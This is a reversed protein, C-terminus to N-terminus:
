GVSVSVSRPNYLHKGTVQLSCFVNLLRLRDISASPADALSPSAVVIALCKARSLAVNLRNRNLLFDIGRAADEGGSAAMSILVVAAEQGQFRDVTGVRAGAPLTQELLNVQMNYPSVVLIDDAGMVRTQGKEDTWNRGLLDKYIAAIKKAEEPSRQAGDAHHVEVFRVGRPRLTGSEDVHLRQQNTTEAASLRGEYFTDSVFRCLDPHLRYTTGLFIGRDPPVTPLDRMLYDLASVGSGGPHAGKIPQSLQMQDGVLVINKTSGGMAVVNALSVQGAEDVFLYDFRGEMDERSFLWATGGVLQWEEQLSTKNDTTDEIFRGHLFSDPDRDSAKKVGKFTFNVEGAAKEIERLLNNIAKHSLSTVGIRKGAKLLSVIARASVFTKGTGPPGQIVLHSNSLASVAETIANVSAAAETGLSRGRSLRPKERRLISTLADSEADIAIVRLAYRMVADRMVHDPLPGDPMLSFEAPFASRSPGVKLKVIGREQDLEVIEGAPEMDPEARLPCDGVCLKTEQEPFRFTFVRSRKVMVPPTEPDATLGGLCEADDILQDTSWDAREFVWWWERRAERRHFNLLHGLLLRWDREEPPLPSEDAPDPHVGILAERVREIDTSLKLREEEKEKEGARQLDAPDFWKAGTPRLTLLWDRCLRTSRCDFANYTAIDDLLSQDGLVRWREYAVISDGGSSIKDTRAPAYFAELDKISYGPQCTRISERVVKYLDVFKHRRVLDDIPDERTGYKQALFKLTSAPTDGYADRLKRLAAVEYNAYHYVYADPFKALRALIFDVADEFAKKEQRREHAWFPTFHEVGDDVHHFGFLYELGGAPEWLPDGEMDFFLDGAHVPPLRNFGKHEDLELLEISPKRFTQLRAQSRIRDLAEPHLKQIRKDAPLEALGRMTTVGGAVLKARQQKTIRAVLSLHDANTWESDCRDSWRCVDCHAVPDAQTSEPKSAFSLFRERAHQAYHIYDNLRLTVKVGSGLVIHINDPLVEQEVGVLSSYICLQIVHKAKASQALKTDIVEYSWRGLKSPTDVRVLFDSYGHWPPLYLAGQYIVEAGNRMAARTAAVKDALSLTDDIAICDRGEAKLKDLFAREHELGKTRLLDLYADDDESAGELRGKLAALDLTTSHPCGLFNLLDSASYLREGHELKM